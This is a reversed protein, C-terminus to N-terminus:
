SVIAICSSSYQFLIQQHGQCFMIGSGLSYEVYTNHPQVLSIISHLQRGKVPCAQEKNAIGRRHCLFYSFKMEGGLGPKELELLKSEWRMLKLSGCSMMKPLVNHKGTQETEVM